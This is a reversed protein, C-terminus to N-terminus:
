VVLTVIFLASTVAVIVVFSVYFTFHSFTMLSQFDSTFPNRNTVSTVSHVLINEPTSPRRTEYQEYYEVNEDTPNSLSESLDDNNTSITPTVNHHHQTSPLTSRHDTNSTDTDNVNTISETTLNVLATSTEDSIIKRSIPRY